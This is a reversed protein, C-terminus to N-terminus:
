LTWVLTTSYWVPHRQPKGQVGHLEGQFWLPLVRSGSLFFGLVMSSSGQSWSVMSSSGQFWPPLVRSGHIFFGPVMSSSGQSWSVMSSSGQLWPPLVRSGHIFFGPVMSSSGQFWPPLVRSGLDRGSALPPEGLLQPTHVTVQIKISKNTSGPISVKSFWM